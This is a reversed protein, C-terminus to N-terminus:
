ELLAEMIRDLAKEAGKHLPSDSGFRSTLAFERLSVIKILISLL